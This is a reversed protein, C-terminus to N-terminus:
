QIIKYVIRLNIIEIAEIELKYVSYVFYFKGSVVIKDPVEMSLGAARQQDVIPRYFDSNTDDDGEAVTITEPVRMQKNITETYSSKYAMQQLVPGMDPDSSYSNM